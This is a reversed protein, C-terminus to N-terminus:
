PVADQRLLHVGKWGEGPHATSFPMRHGSASCRLNKSNDEVILILENAM